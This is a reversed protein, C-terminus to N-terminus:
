RHTMDMMFSLLTMHSNDSYHYCLLISALVSNIYNIFAFMLICLLM